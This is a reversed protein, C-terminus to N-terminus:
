TRAARRGPLWASALLAVVAGGARMAFARIFGTEDQFGGDLGAATILVFAVTVGVSVGTNRLLLPVAVAIGSQDACAKRLVVPYLSTLILGWGLGVM